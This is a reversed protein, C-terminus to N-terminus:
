PNGRATDAAELHKSVFSQHSPPVDLLWALPVGEELLRLQYARLRSQDSWILRPTFGNRLSEAALVGAAEGINWEVPHLRYCGNTIHTTGINKAAALLNTIGVPILAGTAIQFPRTRCSTAMDGEGAQHIDIPYWGVGCSDPFPAAFQGRQFDVSVDQEVITRLARIRRSERIYPHKALGDASGLIEPYLRLEPFGGRRESDPAETQIWHLFGLSVLKADQLAQAVDVAARDIISGDRYDNGPWNFLTIDSSLGAFGHDAAVLRRYSWVGGKTGPAQDLMRYNLWGGHESYIEGGHTHIRLSYPQRDRYHEYKAPRPIIHSQPLPMRELVFPYTFSQVCRPKPEVPQAHPEGTQDRTEAGISYSAGALPLLDGLETADIVMQPQFRVTGGRELDQILVTTVKTCDTHVAVAKSRLFVRLRGCNIEPALLGKIAALAVSPEFALHSVWCKGPNLDLPKATSSRARYLARISERLDYYTRTGGFSEIHEHEDLASIGQATLQGGIWDTEETLCTKFGARATAWAAAVGGTGGGVVLVDCAIEIPETLSVPVVAISSDGESPVRMFDVLAALRKTAGFSTLDSPCPLSTPRLPM